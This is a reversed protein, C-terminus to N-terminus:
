CAPVLRGLGTDEMPSWKAMCLPQGSGCFSREPAGESQARGGGGTVSATGLHVKGAAAELGVPALVAAQMNTDARAVPPLVALASLGVARRLAGRRVVAMWAIGLTSPAAGRAVTDCRPSSGRSALRGAQRCRGYSVPVPRLPTQGALRRAAALDAPSGAPGLPVCCMTDAVMRGDTDPLTMTIVAVAALVSPVATKAAAAPVARAVDRRCLTALRLPRMGNAATTGSGSCGDPRARAGAMWTTCPPRFRCVRPRPPWTRAGVTGMHTLYGVHQGKHVDHAPGAAVCNTRCALTARPLQLPAASVPFPPRLCSAAPGPPHRASQPSAPPLAAHMCTRAHAAHSSAPAPPRPCPQPPTPGAAPGGHHQPHIPELCSRAALSPPSCCPFPHPSPSPLPPLPAPPGLSPRCPETSPLPPLIGLPSRTCRHFPTVSCPMVWEMTAALLSALHPLSM